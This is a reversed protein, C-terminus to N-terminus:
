QRHWARVAMCGSYVYYAVGCSVTVSVPLSYVFAGVGAMLITEKLPMTM